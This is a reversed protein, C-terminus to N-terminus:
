KVIFPSDTLNKRQVEPHHTKRHVALGVKSQIDKQYEPSTKIEKVVQFYIFFDQLFFVFCFM